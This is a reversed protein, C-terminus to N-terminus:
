RTLLLRAGVLAKGFLKRCRDLTAPQSAGRQVFVEVHDLLNQGGGPRDRVARIGHRALHAGPGIRTLMLLKPSNITSAALIVERRAGIVEVRGGRAVEVGTARGAAIVVRRALAHM